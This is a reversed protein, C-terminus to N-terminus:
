DRLPTPDPGLGALRGGPERELKVLLEFCQQPRLDAIMFGVIGAGLAGGGPYPGALVPLARKAVAECPDLTGYLLWFAGPAAALLMLAFIAPRFM